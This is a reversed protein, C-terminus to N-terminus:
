RRICSYPHPSCDDASYFRVFGQIVGSGDSQLRVGSNGATYQYALVNGGVHGRGINSNGRLDHMQVNVDDGSQRVDIFESVNGEPGQFVCSYRGSMNGMPPEPPVDLTTKMDAVCQNARGQAGGSLLSAPICAGLPAALCVVLVFRTM